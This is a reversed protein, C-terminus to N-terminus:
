QRQANPALSKLSLSKNAIFIDIRIKSIICSTFTQMLKHNMQKKSFVLSSLDHNPNIQMSGSCYVAVNQATTTSITSFFL